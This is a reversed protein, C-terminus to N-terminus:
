RKPREDWDKMLIRNADGSPDEFQRSSLAWLFGILGAGGLALSVPILVSLIQM